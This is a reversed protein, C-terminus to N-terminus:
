TMVRDSNRHQVLRQNNSWGRQHLGWGTQRHTMSARPWPRFLRLPCSPAFLILIVIDLIRNQLPLFRNQQRNRTNQWKTQLLTNRTCFENLVPFRVLTQYTDIKDTGPIWNLNTVTNNSANELCLVIFYVSFTLNVIKFLKIHSQPKPQLQIILPLTSNNTSYVSRRRREFIKYKM